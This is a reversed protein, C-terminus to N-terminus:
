AIATAWMATNLSSCACPKGLATIFKAGVALLPAIYSLSFFKGTSTSTTWHYSSLRLKM